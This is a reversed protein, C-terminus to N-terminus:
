RMNGSLRPRKSSLTALKQHALLTTSLHRFRMEGSLRGRTAVTTVSSAM